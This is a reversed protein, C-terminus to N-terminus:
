PLVICVEAEGIVPLHDVLHYFAAQDVDLLLHRLNRFFQIRISALVSGRSAHESMIRSTCSRNSFNLSTLCRSACLSFLLQWGADM